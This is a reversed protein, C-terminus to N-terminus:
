YGRVDDAAERCARAVRAHTYVSITNYGDINVLQGFPLRVTALNVMSDTVTCTFLLFDDPCVARGDGCRPDNFSAEVSLAAEM